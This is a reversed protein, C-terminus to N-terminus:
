DWYIINEGTPELKGNCKPCPKLKVDWKVLFRESNCIPCQIIPLLGKKRGEIYEVMVDVVEKCNLCHFTETKSYMGRDTGGSIIATYECKNCKFTQRAGM